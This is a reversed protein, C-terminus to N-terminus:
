QDAECEDLDELLGRLLSRDLEALEQEDVLVRAVRERAVDTLGLRAIVGAADAVRRRHTREYRADAILEEVAERAVRDESSESGAVYLTTTKGGPLAVTTTL